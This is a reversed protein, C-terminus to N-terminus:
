RVLDCVELDWDRYKKAFALRQARHHCRLLPKKRRIRSHLGSRRLSRRVTRVSVSALESNELSKQINVATILKGSAASNAINREQRATLIKPRGVGLLKDEESCERRLRCITTKSTGTQAAIDRTSAGSSLLSTIQFKIAESISKM